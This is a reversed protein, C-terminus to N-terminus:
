SYRSICRQLQQREEEVHLANQYCSIYLPLLEIASAYIDPLKNNIIISHTLIIANDMYFEESRNGVTEDVNRIIILLERKIDNIDLHLKNNWMEILSKQVLIGHERLIYNDRINMQMQEIYKNFRMKFGQILTRIPDNCVMDIRSTYEDSIDKFSINNVINTSDSDNWNNLIEEFHYKYIYFLSIIRDYIDQSIM